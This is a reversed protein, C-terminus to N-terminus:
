RAHGRNINRLLDRASRVAGCAQLGALEAPTILQRAFEDELLRADALSIWRRWHWGRDGSHYQRQLAMSRRANDVKREFRPWTSFPLHAILAGRLNTGAISQGWPDIAAHHGADIRGITSPRVAVKPLPVSRIWAPPDPEELRRRLSPIGEVYLPVEDYRAPALPTPLEPGGHMVAVNYRMVNVVPHETEALLSRVSGGAPLWFEDADLLLVWDTGLSQALWAERAGWTEVDADDMEDYTHLRVPDDARARVAEVTGDESGYDQVVVSDVGIDFLHDLCRTILASEDKVGVIAGVSIM